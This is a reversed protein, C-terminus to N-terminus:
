SEREKGERQNEVPEPAHNVTAVGSGRSSDASDKVANSASTDVHWARAKSKEREYLLDGTSRVRSPSTPVAPPLSSSSTETHRQPLNDTPLM